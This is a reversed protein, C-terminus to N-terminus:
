RENSSLKIGCIPCYLVAASQIARDLFSEDTRSFDRQYLECQSNNCYKLKLRGDEKKMNVEKKNERRPGRNLIIQAKKIDKGLAGM